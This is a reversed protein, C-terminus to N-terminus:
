AVGMIAKYYPEWELTKLLDELRVDIVPPIYTDTAEELLGAERLYTKYAGSLRKITADTFSAVKENQAAKNKFFIRLSSNELEKKGIIRDERYVEYMFEFFLQNVKLTALLNIIRQTELDFSFYQGVVEEPLHDIRKTITSAMRRGTDESPALYVNEAKQLTKIEAYTKGENVLEITKRFETFWFGKNVLDATYKGKNM